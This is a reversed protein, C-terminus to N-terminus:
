NYKVTKVTLLSVLNILSSNLTQLWVTPGPTKLAILDQGGLSIWRGLTHTGGINPWLANGYARQSRPPTQPETLWQFHEVIESAEVSLAMALNKPSHFQERDREAIFEGIATRLDELGPDKRIWM